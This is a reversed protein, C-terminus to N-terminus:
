FHTPLNASVSRWRRKFVWSNQIATEVSNLLEPHSFCELPRPFIGRCFTEVSNLLEPHSFSFRTTLFLTVDRRLPTSFNLTASVNLNSNIELPGGLRLPTSFNLTASVQYVVQLRTERNTEVSNLLEPHSFSEANHIIEIWAHRLPTSFNLTASVTDIDM